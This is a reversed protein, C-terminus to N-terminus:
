YSSGDRFTTGYFNGDAARVLPAEPSTGNTQHFSALTSFVGNTTIRFVTGDSYAGGSSTTGYLSGDAGPALAAMPTDGDAGQFSYLSEVQAASAGQGLGLLLGWLAVTHFPNTKM